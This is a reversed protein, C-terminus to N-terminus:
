DTFALIPFFIFPLFCLGLSFGVGKDFSKGVNFTLYLSIGISVFPGIVPIGGAFYPAIGLWGSQDAVRAYTWGNYFPVFTAWGPEGAKDYVMYMVIKSFIVVVVLIVLFPIGIKKFIGAFIDIKAGIVVMSLDDYSRLGIDVTDFNSMDNVGIDSVSIDDQSDQLVIAVNRGFTQYENGSENPYEVSYLLYYLEQEGSSEVHTIYCNMKVIEKSDIMDAVVELQEKTTNDRADDGLLEWAQDLKSDGLMYIYSEAFEKLPEFDVKKKSKDSGGSSGVMVGIGIMAVVVVVVIGIIMLMKSKGGSGDKRPRPKPAAGKAGQPTQEVSRPRPIDVAPSQAEFQMLEDMMNNMGGADAGLPQDQGVRLVDTPDESLKLEDAPKNIEPAQIVKECKTCKLRRGAYKKKLRIKQDCDPCNFKYTESPETKPKAASQSVRNSAKCKPCRVSKGAYKDSM